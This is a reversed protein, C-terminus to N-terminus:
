ILAETVGYPVHLVQNPKKYRLKTTPPPLTAKPFALAAKNSMLWSELNRYPLSVTAPSTGTNRDWEESTQAVRAKM